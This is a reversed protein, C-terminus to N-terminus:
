VVNNIAQCGDLIFQGLRFKDKAPNKDANSLLDKNTLSALTAIEGIDQVEEVDDTHEKYLFQYLIVLSKLPLDFHIYAKPLSEM